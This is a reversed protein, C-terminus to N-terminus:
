SVSCARVGAGTLVIIRSASQLLAVADDMTNVYRIKERATRM